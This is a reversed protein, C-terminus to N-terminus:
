KKVLLKVYPWNDMGGEISYVTEYGKSLFSELAKLSYFGDASILIIQKNTPINSLNIEKKIKSWPLSKAGVVHYKSYSLSDRVDYLIYDNARQQIKYVLAEPMIIYDNYLYELKTYEENNDIGFIFIPITFFIILFFITIVVISKQNITKKVIFEAM